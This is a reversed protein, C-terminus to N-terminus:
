GRNATTEPYFERYLEIMDDASAEVTRVAPIGGQLRALLDPEAVLRTLAGVWAEISAPEVLLGNVGDTVLDSIGRIRSGLVPIGTSFAEYVVLPGTELWQSPVALLDHQALMEAVGEHPIAGQYRIRPDLSQARLVCDHLESAVGAPVAAYIDLKLPLDAARRFAELLIPIGKERAMRGLYIIRIEDGAAHSRRDKRDGSSATEFVGARSVRLKAPDAHNRILLEAAWENIAVIRDATNLLEHFAHFFKLRLQSARIATWPKGSFGAWEVYEGAARPLAALARAATRNLGRGHLLCAACPETDIAGSCVQSGWRMLTGRLCSVTPTHYSFVLPLGANKVARMLHISVGSTWAHAHVIDPRARALVSLFSKVASRDGEGYQDSLSEVATAFRHVSIGNHLYAADAAAPAAIEVTLGKRRQWIALSEVYIETGGIPDPYYTYPIHLVKM